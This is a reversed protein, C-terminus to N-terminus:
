LWLQAQVSYIRLNGVGSLGIVTPCSLRIMLLRKHTSIQAPGEEIRIDALQDLPILQGNQNSVRINKISEFSARDEPSFRVQISFRKQGELVQGVQKGGIAEVTDLVQSTNIGYRAIAERDIIVRLYPLGAVQEAKTDASGPVKSIVNVV